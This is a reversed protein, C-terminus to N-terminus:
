KFGDNALKDEYYSFGLKSAKQYDKELDRTTDPDPDINHAAYHDTNHVVFKKFMQLKSETGKIKSTISSCRRYYSPLSKIDKELSNYTNPDFKKKILSKVKEEANLIQYYGKIETYSQRLKGQCTSNYNSIEKIENYVERVSSRACNSKWDEFALNLSGAYASYLRTELNIKDVQSILSQTHYMNIQSRIKEFEPKNWTKLELDECSKSLKIVTPNSSIPGIPGSSSQQGM